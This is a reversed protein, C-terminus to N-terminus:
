ENGYILKNLETITNLFNYPTPRCALSADIIHIHNNKSASLDKFSNWTDKEENSVTGMTVLIIIDPNKMIVKERTITGGRQDNAINEGGMIEIYDHMFTNPIACFLPKAGIEVFYKPKTDSKPISRIVANMKTNLSDIYSEAKTKEGVLEGLRIFQECTGNWDKPSAFLETHIGFQKLREIQKPKFMTTYIVVDPKLSLVKEMNMSIASAVVLDENTGLDCFSTCGVINEECDLELLNFTAAPSLSIIRKFPQANTSSVMLFIISSIIIKYM